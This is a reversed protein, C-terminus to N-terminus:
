RRRDFDSVAQICIQVEAEKAEKTLWEEWGPLTHGMRLHCVEHLAALEPKMDCDGDDNYGIIARRQDPVDRQAWACYAPDVPPEYTFRYPLALGTLKSYYHVGAEFRERRAGEFTVTPQPDYTITWVVLALALAWVALLAVRGLM